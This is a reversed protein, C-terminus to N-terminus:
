GARRTSRSPAAPATAPASVLQGSPREPQPECGPPDLFFTVVEEFTEAGVNVARHPRPEPPDWDAQGPAVALEIREGDRFEIALREGRVVVTFRHVADIHWPTAEGPALVARRIELDDRRTIIETRM